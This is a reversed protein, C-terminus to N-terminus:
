VIEDGEIERIDVKGGSISLSVAVDARIVDNDGKGLEKEIAEKILVMLDYSM